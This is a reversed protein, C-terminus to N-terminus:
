KVSGFGLPSFFFLNSCSGSAFFSCFFGFVRIKCGFTFKKTKPFQLPECPFQLEQPHIHLLEGSSMAAPDSSFRRLALDIDTKRRAFVTTTPLSLSLWLQLKYLLLTPLWHAKKPFIQWHSSSADFSLTTEDKRRGFDHGCYCSEDKNM